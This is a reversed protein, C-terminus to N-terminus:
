QMTQTSTDRLMRNLQASGQHYTDHLAEASEPDCAVALRIREPRSGDQHMVVLSRFGSLMMAEISQLRDLKQAVELTLLKEIDAKPVEPHLLTMFSPADSDQLLMQFGGHREVAQLWPRALPQWLPILWQFDHVETGTKLVLCPLGDVLWQVGASLRSNCSAKLDDIESSPLRTHLMAEDAEADPLLLASYRTNECLGLLINLQPLYVESTQFLQPEKM